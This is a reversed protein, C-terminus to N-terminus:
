TPRSKRKKTRDKIVPPEYEIFVRKGIKWGFYGGLFAGIVAFLATAIRINTIPDVHILFVLLNATVRGFGILGLLLSLMIGAVIGLCCGLPGGNVEGQAEPPLSPELDPSPASMDDSINDEDPKSSPSLATEEEPGPQPPLPTSM